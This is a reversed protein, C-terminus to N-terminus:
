TRYLIGSDDVCSDCLLMDLMETPIVSFTKTDVRNICGEHIRTRCRNCTKYYDQYYHIKEIYAVNLWFPDLNSFLFGLTEEITDFAVYTRHYTVLFKDRLDDYSDDHPFSVSLVKTDLEKVLEDTFANKGISFGLDQLYEIQNSKNM